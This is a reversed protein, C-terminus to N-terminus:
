VVTRREVDLDLMVAGPVSVVDRRLAVNLLTRLIIRFDTVVNLHRVYWIDMALRDDWRVLNRGHVQAWGTIGPLVSFRLREEDRFYPLYRILLPRPGIISMEGRLVNFLQPLEDLSARRLFRGVRTEREADPLLEGHADKEETMTRFKVLTFPQEHLGPRQQRLLVPRGLAIRVVVATALWLPALGILLLLAATRDLVPKGYNRYM